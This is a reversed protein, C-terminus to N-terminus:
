EEDEKMLVKVESKSRPRLKYVVRPNDAESDLFGQHTYNWSCGKPDKTWKAEADALIKKWKEEAEVQALKKTTTDLAINVSKRVDVFAGGDGAGGCCGALDDWVMHTKAYM